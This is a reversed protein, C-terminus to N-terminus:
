QKTDLKNILGILVREGLKGRSEEQWESCDELLSLEDMIADM